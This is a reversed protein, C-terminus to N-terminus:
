INLFMFNISYVKTQCSSQASKIHWKLVFLSLLSESINHQDGENQLTIKEFISLFKEITRLMTWDTPSLIDKKLDKQSKLYFDIDKEVEIATRLMRYWSNWRTRNDLPIRKGAIKFFEATRPGSSRIHIVINHLKGLSGMARLKDRRTQQDSPKLETGAKDENDYSALDQESISKLDSPFLFAYVILNIIHGICRIRQTTHNWEPKDNEEFWSSIARCLTDNTTANDGIITGLNELCDYESLVTRLTDFQEEGSHSGITRLGLLAKSICAQDHQVFHAVIGLFLLTNPSTWVDLSINIKSCATRLQNQLIVREENWISIISSRVTNHSTPIFHLALPNLASVFSHFIPWEVISLPLRHFVVIQVLLKQIVAKNLADKFVANQLDEKTRGGANIYVNKLQELAIVQIDSDAAQVIINHVNKLHRRFNTVVQTHFSCQDQNCYRVLLANHRLPEDGIPERTYPLLDATRPDSKSRISTQTDSISTQSIEIM